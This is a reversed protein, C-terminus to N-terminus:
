PTGGDREALVVIRLTDLSDLYGEESEPDLWLVAGPGEPRPRPETTVPQHDSTLLVLPVPAAWVAVGTPRDSNLADVQEPTCGATGLRANLQAQLVTRTRRAHGIRAERRAAAGQLGLYGPVLEATLASLEDAYARRRGGEYVLEYRYPEGDPRVPPRPPTGDARVRLRVAPAPASPNM